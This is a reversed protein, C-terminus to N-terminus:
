CFIPPKKGHKYGCLGCKFELLGWKDGAAFNVEVKVVVDSDTNNSHFFLTNLQSVLGFNLPYIEL